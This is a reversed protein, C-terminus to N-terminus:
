MVVGRLPVYFSNKSSEDKEAENGFGFQNLLEFSSLKPEKYLKWGGYYLM